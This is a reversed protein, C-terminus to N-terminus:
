ACGCSQRVRLEAPVVIHQPPSDDGALRKLLLEFAREAVERPPREVCTLFPRAARSESDDFTALALDGPVAMGLERTADMVGAAIASNAAVIAQPPKAQSLLDLASGFGAERRYPGTRIQGQLGHAALSKRFGNARERATSLSPPGSVLAVRDHGHVDLLHDTLTAAAHVSEGAVLDADVGRISRDILVLQVGAASLIPINAAAADGAPALLVGDLHFAALRELYAREISPEDDSNGFLVTYGREVAAVELAHAIQTFWPNTIDGMILAIMRVGGRALGRALENPTYRLQEMAQLVRERTGASVGKSGNIVRSVTMHSVKALAGVDALTVGGRAARRRPTRQGPVIGTYIHPGTLARM